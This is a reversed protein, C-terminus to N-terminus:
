IKKCYNLCIWGANNMLHGWNDDTYDVGQRSGRNLVTVIRFNTGAGSRVRLRAVNVIYSGASYKSSEINLTEIRACYDLCIWGANNMLHGWNGNTYDVGQRSGRYLNTIIRYNTGPGSRVRLSSATVIYSGASYKSPPTDSVEIKNCYDLCIWGANNMLHGWIGSTYDIGQKSGRNLTTVIGYQTSPGRRVRLRSAAVEYSGALYISGSNANNNGKGHDNSYCWFTRYNAYQKFNNITCYITHGSVTVKGRRSPTDFKGNYMYPDFISITNGDIGVLVIYHGNTTFLGNGCSVIIFYGNRLYDIATNFNSTYAYNDFGFYDAIFPFASWATGNAATRYGNSVFLDAMTTPLIAGKSSSVVMAAVTPGCGSSKMTQSSDGISTYPTNAWRSDAQSYYTLGQYSGLLHLGEGRSDGNYSINEQEVTGDNEIQYEDILPQNLEDDCTSCIYNNDCTDKITKEAENKIQETIIVKHENQVIENEVQNIGNTLSAKSIFNFNLVTIIIAITVTLLSKKM